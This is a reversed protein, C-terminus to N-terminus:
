GVEGVPIELNPGWPHKSLDLSRLATDPSLRRAGGVYHGGEGEPRGAEVHAAACSSQAVEGEEM